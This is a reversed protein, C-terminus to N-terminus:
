QFSVYPMFKLLSASLNLVDNDNERNEDNPNNVYVFYATGFKNSIEFLEKSREDDIMKYYRIITIYLLIIGIFVQKKSNTFVDLGCSFSNVCNYIGTQLEKTIAVRKDTPYRALEDFSVNKLSFSKFMSDIANVAKRRERECDM